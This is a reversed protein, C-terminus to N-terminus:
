PSQPFLLVNEGPIIAYHIHDDISESTYHLKIQVVDTVPTLVMTQADAWTVSLGECGRVCTVSGDAPMHLFYLRAHEPRKEETPGHACAGSHLMAVALAAFFLLRPRQMGM